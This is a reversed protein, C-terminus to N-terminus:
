LTNGTPKVIADPSLSPAWFGNSCKALCLPIDLEEILERVKDLTMASAYGGTREDATTIVVDIVEMPLGLPNGSWSNNTKIVTGDELKFEFTRGGFGGCRRGEVYDSYTQYQVIGETVSYVYKGHTHWIIDEHKPIEVTDVIVKLRPNNGYQLMWDVRLELIEM